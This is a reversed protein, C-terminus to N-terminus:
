PLTLSPIRGQAYIGDGNPIYQYTGPPHTSEISIRLVLYDGAHAPAAVGDADGDFGVADFQNPAPAPDFHHRFTAIPTESSATTWLVDFRVDCPENIIGDGVLHWHGAPVPGPLKYLASLPDGVGM